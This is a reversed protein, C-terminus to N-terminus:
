GFTSNFNFHALTDEILNLANKVPFLCQPVANALANTMTTGVVSHTTWHRLRSSMAYESMQVTVNWHLKKNIANSHTKKRNLKAVINRSSHCDFFNVIRAFRYEASSASSNANFQAQGHNIEVNWKTSFVWLVSATTAFACLHHIAVNHVSGYLIIFLYIIWNPRETLACVAQIKNAMHKTAYLQITSTIKTWSRM